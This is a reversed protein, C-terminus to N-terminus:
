NNSYDGTYRYASVHNKALLIYLAEQEEEDEEVDANEKKKKRGNSFLCTLFSYLCQFPSKMCYVFLLWETMSPVTIGCSYFHGDYIM